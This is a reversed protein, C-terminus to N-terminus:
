WGSTEDGSNYSSIVLKYTKDPSLEAWVDLSEDKFKDGVSIYSTSYVGSDVVYGESDYLKWSFSSYRNYDDGNIDYTKEGSFYIMTYVYGSSIECRIDTIEITAEIEGDESYEHVTTPCEPLTINIEPNNVIEYVLNALMCSSLMSSLICLTLIIAIIKLHKM